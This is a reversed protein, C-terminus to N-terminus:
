FFFCYKKLLVAQRLRGDNATNSRADTETSFRRKSLLCIQWPNRRTFSRTISRDTVYRVFWLSKLMGAWRDSSESLRTHTHQTCDCHNVGVHLAVTFFSKKKRSFENRWESLRIQWRMTEEHRSKPSHNCFEALNQFLVSQVSSCCIHMFNSFDKLRLPNRRQNPRM